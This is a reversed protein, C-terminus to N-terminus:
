SLVHEAEFDHGAKLLEEKENRLTSSNYIKEADDRACELLRFDDLPNVFNFSPLGAQRIGLLEGPGRMKLDAEAIEFGDNTEVMVKLKESDEHPSLLLCTAEQGGRGIRGRLQHLSSLSFHNAEYIIMLSAEKVDLGVEILSTAVLISSPGKLFSERAKLLEDNSMKGHMFSVKGPFALDYFEYVKKVSQYNDDGEIRPAVIYAKGNSKLCQNIYKFIEKEDEPSLILTKVDRKGQPFEHLTSIALDGFLTQTLTRPIPTASMLLLDAHEGKGLLRSRQNVGFKHQEDIIALSLQSYIVDKSFLAHTGVVIDLTGDSLDQKIAQRSENDISGTLLGINLPTGKFLKELNEYHQRALTDTPALIATQGHRTYNAYSALSAVLTKGTGVDGQLLRYMLYSADMDDIIEKLTKRQDDTLGYPLSSIFKEVAELDVKDMSRSRRLNSSKKKAEAIQMEYILGEEYKLTRLAQHIDKGNKPFHLAEVAKVKPYLRYKLRYEGPILEPIEEQYLSFARKILRSFIANPIENPLHYLPKLYEGEQIRGKQFNLLVLCHRKADYHAELTWQSGIEFIKNLFERGWAEVQFLEGKEELFSFRTMTRKFFRVVKPQSKITGFIIFRQRERYPPTPKLPTWNEYNYPFHFLVKLPTTLGYKILKDQLPRSKTLKELGEKKLKSPRIEDEEEKLRQRFFGNNM